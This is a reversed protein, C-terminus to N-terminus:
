IYKCIKVMLHQVNVDTILLWWHVITNISNIFFHQLFSNNTLLKIYSICWYINISLVKNYITVKFFSSAFHLTSRVQACCAEHAAGHHPHLHYSRAAQQWLLSSCFLTCGLAKVCLHFFPRRPTRRSLAPMTQCACQPACIARTPPSAPTSLLPSSLARSLYSWLSLDHAAGPNTRKGKVRNLVYIASITYSLVTKRSMHISCSLDLWDYVGQMWVPSCKGFNDYSVMSAKSFPLGSCSKLLCFFM